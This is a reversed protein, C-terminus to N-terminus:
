ALAQARIAEIQARIDGEDVDEESSPQGEGIDMWAGVRGDHVEVRVPGYAAPKKRRTARAGQAFFAALVAPDAAHGDAVYM